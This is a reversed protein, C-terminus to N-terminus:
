RYKNICIYLITKKKRISIPISRFGINLKTRSDLCEPTTCEGHVVVVMNDDRWGLWNYVRARGARGRLDICDIVNVLFEHRRDKNKQNKGESKMCIFLHTQRSLHWHWRPDVNSATNTIKLASSRVKTTKPEVNILTKNQELAEIAVLNIWDFMVDLESSNSKLANNTNGSM